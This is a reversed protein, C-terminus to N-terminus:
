EEGTKRVKILYVGPSFQRPESLKGSNRVSAVLHGMMDYVQISKGKVIPLRSIGNGSLFLFPAVAARTDAFVKSSRPAQISV